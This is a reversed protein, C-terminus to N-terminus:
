HPRDRDFARATAANVASVENSTTPLPATAPWVAWGAHPIHLGWRDRVRRDICVPNPHAPRVIIRAPQQQNENYALVDFKEVGDPTRTIQHAPVLIRWIREPPTHEGHHTAPEIVLDGTGAARLRELQTPAPSFLTAISDATTILAASGLGDHREHDHPAVQDARERLLAVARHPEGTWAYLRALTVVRGTERDWTLQARTRHDFERRRRGQHYHSDLHRLTDFTHHAPRGRILLADARHTLLTVARHVANSSAAALPDPTIAHFLAALHLGTMGTHLTGQRAPRGVDSTDRWHRLQHILATLDTTWDVVRGDVSPIRELGALYDTITASPLDLDDVQHYRLRTWPATSPAELYAPSVGSRTHIVRWRRPSGFQLALLGASASLITAHADRIRALLRQRDEDFIAAAGYRLVGPHGDNVRLTALHDCV